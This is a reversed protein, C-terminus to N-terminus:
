AQLDGILDVTLFNTEHRPVIVFRKQTRMEALFFKMATLNVIDISVENGFVVTELKERNTLAFTKGAAREPRPQSRRDCQPRSRLALARRRRAGTQLDPGLALHRRFFLKVLGNEIANPCAILIPCSLRKSIVIHDHFGWRVCLRLCGWQAIRWHNM